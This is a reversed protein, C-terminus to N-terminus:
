IAFPASLSSAPVSILAHRRLPGDIDPHDTRGHNSVTGKLLEKFGLIDIFAGLRNEYKM